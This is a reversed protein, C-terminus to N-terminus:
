QLRKLDKKAPEFDPELTVAQQLEQKAQDKHGEKELV